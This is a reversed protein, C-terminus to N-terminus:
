NKKRKKPIFPVVHVLLLFALHGWFFQTHSNHVCLVYM